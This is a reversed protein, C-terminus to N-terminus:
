PCIVEVCIGNGSREEVCMGEVGEGMRRVRRKRKIKKRVRRERKATYHAKATSRERMRNPRQLVVGV